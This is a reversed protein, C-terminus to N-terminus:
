DLPILLVIPNTQSIRVTLEEMVYPRLHCVNVELEVLHSVQHVVRLLDHLLLFLHDHRKAITNMVAMVANLEDTAVALSASANGLDVGSNM